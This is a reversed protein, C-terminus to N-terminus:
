RNVQGKSVKTTITGGYMLSTYEKKFMALEDFLQTRLKDTDADTEAFGYVM